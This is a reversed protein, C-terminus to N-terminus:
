VIPRMNRHLGLTVVSMVATRLISLHRYLFLCDEGYWGAVIQMDTRQGIDDRCLVATIYGAAESHGKLTNVAALVMTIYPGVCCDQEFTVYMQVVESVM